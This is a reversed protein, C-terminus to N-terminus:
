SRLSTRRAGRRHVTALTALDFESGVCSATDLLDLADAPLAELRATLLGVLERPVEQEALSDEDWQWWGEQQDFRFYDAKKLALLFERAFFVNGAAVSHVHDGVHAARERSVQLIDAVLGCIDEPALPGLRIVQDVVGTARWAGLARQAPHGIGLENSRYGLILLLRELGGAGAL